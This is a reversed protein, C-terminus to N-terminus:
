GLDADQGLISVPWTGTRKRKFDMAMEKKKKFTKNVNLLVRNRESLEM